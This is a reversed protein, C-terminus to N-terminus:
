SSVRSQHQPNPDSVAAPTLLAAASAQAGLAETGFAYLVSPGVPRIEFRRPRRLLRRLGSANHHATRAIMAPHAPLATRSQHRLISRPERSGARGRSMLTTSSRLRDIARDWAAAFAHEDAGYRRSQTPSSTCTSPLSCKTQPGRAAICATPTRR